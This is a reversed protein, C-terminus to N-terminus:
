PPADDFCRCVIAVDPRAPDAPCLVLHSTFTDARVLAQCRPCPIERISLQHPREYFFSSPPVVPVNQAFFRLPLANPYGFEERCFDMVTEFILRDFLGAMVSDVQALARELKQKRYNVVPIKAKREAM